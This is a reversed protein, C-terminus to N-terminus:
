MLSVSSRVSRSRTLRGRGSTNVSAVAFRNTPEHRQAGVGRSWFSSRIPPLRAGTAKSLSTSKLLPIRKLTGEM